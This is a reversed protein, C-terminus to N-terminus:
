NIQNNLEPIILNWLTPDDVGRLIDINLPEGFEIDNKWVINLRKYEITAKYTVDDKTDYIDIEKSGSYTGDNNKKYKMGIFNNKIYEFM